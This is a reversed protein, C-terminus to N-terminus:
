IVCLMEYFSIESRLIPKANIIHRHKKRMKGSAILNEEEIPIIKNHDSVSILTISLDSFYSSWDLIM